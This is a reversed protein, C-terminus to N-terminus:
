AAAKLEKLKALFEARKAQPISNSAFQGTHGAPRYSGVLAKIPVAGGIEGAKRTMAEHLEKDTIEKAPAAGDDAFEDVTVSAADAAAVSASKMNDGTQVPEEVTVATPDPDSLSAKSQVVPPKGAPATEPAKKARTGPQKAPEAAAPVTPGTKTPDSNLLVFVRMQALGSVKALVADADDGDDLDFRLEVRVKRPPAYEENKKTGDEYSVAGGAIKM